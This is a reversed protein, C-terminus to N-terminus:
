HQLVSPVYYRGRIRKEIGVVLLQFALMNSVIVNLPKTDYAGQPAFFGSWLRLLNDHLNSNCIWM